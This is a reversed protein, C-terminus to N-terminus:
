TVVKGLMELRNFEGIGKRDWSTIRYRRDEHEVYGVGDFDATTKLGIRDLEERSVSFWLDGERLEAGDGLVLESATRSSRETVVSKVEFPTETSVQEGTLWDETFTQVTLIIDQLRNAELEKRWSRIVKIDDQTLM